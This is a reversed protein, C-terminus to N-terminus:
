NKLRSFTSSQLGQHCDHFLNQDCCAMTCNASVKIINLQWSPLANTLWHLVDQCIKQIPWPGFVSLLEHKLISHLCRPLYVLWWGTGESGEIKSFKSRQCFVVTKRQISLKWPGWKHSAGRLFCLKGKFCVVAEPGFVPRYSQLAVSCHRDKSSILMFSSGQSFHTWLAWLIWCFKHFHIVFMSVFWSSYFETSYLVKSILTRM